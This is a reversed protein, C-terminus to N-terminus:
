NKPLSKILAYFSVSLFALILVITFAPFSLGLWHDLKQGLWFGLLIMVAMQLALGSYKV